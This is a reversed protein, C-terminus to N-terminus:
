NVLLQEPCTTEKKRVLRSPYTLMDSHVRRKNIQNHCKVSFLSFCDSFYSVDHMVAYDRIVDNIM